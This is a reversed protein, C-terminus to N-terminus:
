NYIKEAILAIRSFEEYDLSAGGVLLGDVNDLELISKANKSDVSGGYLIRINKSAKLGVEYEICNRIAVTMIDIDELKVISGAGIALIPEYAIIIKEFDAQGLQSLAKSIQMLAYDIQQDISSDDDANVSGVCLIPQIDQSLSMKLKGIITKVSEDHYRRRESHGVLSFSAGLKKLFAASIDGTYPGDLSDSIDQSGYFIPINDTETLLQVSRISTFPPLICLDVQSFSFNKDELNWFLKQLYALSELHDKNMKWNGVILPKM